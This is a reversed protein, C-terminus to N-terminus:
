QGNLFATYSAVETATLIYLVSSGSSFDGILSPERDNTSYCAIGFPILNRYQQMMNPSNCIRMGNILFDGYSLSNFFWGQQQQIFYLNMEITTGDPLIVSQSQLPDQTIQNVKFM